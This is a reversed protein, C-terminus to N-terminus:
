HWYRILQKKQKTLAVGLWMIMSRRAGVTSIQRKSIADAMRPGAKPARIDSDLGGGFTIWTWGPLCVHTHLVSKTETTFKGYGDAMKWDIPQRRGVSLSFRSVPTGEQELYTECKDHHIWVMSGRLPDWSVYIRGKSYKLYRNHCRLTSSTHQHLGFDWKQNKKREFLIKNWMLAEPSLWELRQHYHPWRCSCCLKLQRKASPCRLPILM